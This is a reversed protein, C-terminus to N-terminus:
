PSKKIMKKLKRNTEENFTSRKSICIIILNIWWVEETFMIHVYM